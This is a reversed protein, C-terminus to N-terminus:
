LVKTIVLGFNHISQRGKYLESLSHDMMIRSINSCVQAQEREDALQKNASELQRELADCRNKLRSCETEVVDLKGEAIDKEKRLYRWIFM